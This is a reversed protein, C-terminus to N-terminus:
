TYDSNRKNALERKSECGNNLMMMATPRVASRFVAVEQTLTTLPNVAV